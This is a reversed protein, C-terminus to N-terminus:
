RDKGDDDRWYIRLHWMGIEEEEYEVWTKVKGAEIGREALINRLDFREGAQILHLRRLGAQSVDDRVVYYSSM